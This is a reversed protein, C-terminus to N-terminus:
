IRAGVRWNRNKKNRSKHRWLFAVSASALVAGWKALTLLAVRFTPNFYALSFILLAIGSLAKLGAETLKKGNPHRRRKGALIEKAEKSHSLAGSRSPGPESNSCLLDTGWRIAQIFPRKLAV